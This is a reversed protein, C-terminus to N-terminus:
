AVLSPLQRLFGFTVLTNDAALGVKFDVLRCRHEALDRSAAWHPSYATVLRICQSRVHEGPIRLPGGASPTLVLPDLIEWWVTGSLNSEGGFERQQM